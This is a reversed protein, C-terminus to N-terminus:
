ANNEGPAASGSERFKRLAQVTKAIDLDTKLLELDPLVQRAFFEFSAWPGGLCYVRGCCDAKCLDRAWKSPRPDVIVCSFGPNTLADEILQNIHDDWGSYGIIMLITQPERLAEALARFMHAFPMSLTEGYKSATPLIALSENSGFVKELLRLEPESNEFEAATPLPKNDFMIGYPNGAESGETRRWDISGHLKYLHLFKGYRSVPGETVRGPYHVDLDYSGPNFRRSVTGTFGDAYLIGLRDMAQEILTDYNTTFVRARGQQPERAVLKALLAEHPTREDDNPLRVNFMVAIARELDLLLSSLQDCTLSQIGQGNVPEALGDLPVTLALKDLPWQTKDMLARLAALQSLLKEVDRSAERPKEAQRLLAELTDATEREAILQKAKELIDSGLIKTAYYSAGAGLLLSVNQMKLWRAFLARVERRIPDQPKPDDSFKALWNEGGRYLLCKDNSAEALSQQEPDFALDSWTAPISEPCSSKKKSPSDM